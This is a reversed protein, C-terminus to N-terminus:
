IADGVKAQRSRTYLYILVAGLALAPLLILGAEPGFAGGTILEPGQVTQRILRPMETLGSVPFGFFPGEFFNWGIHLGISLWLQRTRLYAYALFLGSLVLGLVAVWSANPNNFHALAFLSSSLLVGWFLNLGAAFNQLWYGRSLLEEQWGVIIFVIIIIALDLSFRSLPEFEWAYGEITLWGVGWEAVFILGMIALTIAIGALLDAFAQRNWRLGLSAFSRRDLFRRALWVSTTVAILTAGQGIALDFRATQLDLLQQLRSLAVISIVGILLLLIFHLLLRWGARLRREDPSIFIQALLSRKVRKANNM